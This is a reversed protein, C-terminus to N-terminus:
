SYLWDLTKDLVTASLQGKGINDQLAAAEAATLKAVAIETSRSAANEAAQFAFSMLDRERQWLNNLAATTMGTAATANALNTAQQAASDSTAVDQRWKANAQAIVLGNTAEFQDRQNKIEANFKAISNTADADYQKLANQQTANFQEVQSSLSSYFQKVQNASAANIQLATNEAAQDTFLSKTIIDMKTLAMQQRNALNQAEFQAFTQADQMAIPLASEQVAQTAAAAAMSSAGLGRAAMMANANRLAAAAWAPAPKGEEFGKMLEELQGKVTAQETPTATAADFEDVAKKIEPAAKVSEFTTATETVPTTAKEAEGTLTVEAKPAEGLAVTDPSILQDPTVETKVAEAPTILKAPDAYATSAINKQGAVMEDYQEQDTKVAPTTTTGVTPMPVIDGGEAMALPKVEAKAQSARAVPTNGMIKQQALNGMKGFRASLAPSAAVIKSVDDISTAGGLEKPAIRISQDLTFGAFQKAM